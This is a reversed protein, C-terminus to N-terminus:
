IFNTKLEKLSTKRSIRVFSITVKIIIYYPLTIMKKLYKVYMRTKTYIKQWRIKTTDYGLNLFNVYGRVRITDYGYRYGYELKM